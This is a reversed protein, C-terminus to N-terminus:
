PALASCIVPQSHGAARRQAGARWPTVGQQCGLHPHGHIVLAVECEDIVEGLQDCGLCPYLEPPEGRLTEPIPSSHTLAIRFRQM